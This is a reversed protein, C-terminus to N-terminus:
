LYNLHWTANICIIGKPGMQMNVWCGGGLSGIRLECYARIRVRDGIRINNGDIGEGGIGWKRVLTM